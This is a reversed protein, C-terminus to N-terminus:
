GNRAPRSRPRMFRPEPAREGSMPGYAPRYPRRRRAPPRRADTGEDFRQPRFIAELTAASLKKARRSNRALGHETKEWGHPDRALQILARWAALTLILWHVPVLALSGAVRMLGHRALARIGLFVSTFYGASLTAAYLIAMAIQAGNMTAFSRSNMLDHVLLVLFIPHILAALINGGVVLQFILFGGLGLEHLLCL